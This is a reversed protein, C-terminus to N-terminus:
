RPPVVSGEIVKPTAQTRVFFAGAATVITMVVLQQDATLKLGFSIGLAILTKFGATVAALAGQHVSVATAVGFVAVALANITGQQDPTLNWIFTSVGMVIAAILALWVAPERGFLKM